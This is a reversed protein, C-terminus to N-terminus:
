TPLGRKILTDLLERDAWALVYESSSEERRRKERLYRGYRRKSRLYGAERLKAMRNCICVRTTGLEDAVTKHFPRIKGTKSDALDNMLAYLVRESYKLHRDRLVIGLVKWRAAATRIDPNDRFQLLPPAAAATAASM